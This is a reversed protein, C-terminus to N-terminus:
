LTIFSVTVFGRDPSLPVCLSVDKIPSFDIFSEQLVVTFNDREYEGTAILERLATYYDRAIQNMEDEVSDDVACGCIFSRGCSTRTSLRFRVFSKEEESGILM